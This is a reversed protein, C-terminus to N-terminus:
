RVSNQCQSAIAGDYQLIRVRASDPVHEYVKASVVTFRAAAVLASVMAHVNRLQTLQSLLQLRALLQEDRADSETVLTSYGVAGGPHDVDPEEVVGVPDFLQLREVAPVWAHVVEDHVLRCGLLQQFVKLAGQHGGNRVIAFASSRLEDDRESARTATM